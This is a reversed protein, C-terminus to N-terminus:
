MSHYIPPLRLRSETPLFAFSANAAASRLACISTLLAISNCIQSPMSGSASAHPDMPAFGGYLCRVFMYCWVASQDALALIVAARKIRQALWQLIIQRYSILINLSECRQQRSPKSAEATLPIKIGCPSEFRRGSGLARSNMWRPQELPM